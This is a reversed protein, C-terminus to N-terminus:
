NAIIFSPNFDDFYYQIQAIFFCILDFAELLALLGPEYSKCSPVSFDVNPFHSEIQKQLRLPLQKFELKLGLLTDPDV